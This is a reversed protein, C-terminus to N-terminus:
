APSLPLHMLMISNLVTAVLTAIICYSCPFFYLCVDLGSQTPEVQYRAPPHATAKFSRPMALGRLRSWLSRRQSRFATPDPKTLSCMPRWTM